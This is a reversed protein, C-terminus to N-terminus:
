AMRLISMKAKLFDGTAGDFAVLPHYGMTGYHANYDSSEQGGYTDSHTSDLDIFLAEPNRFAHVKDLLEQNAKNLHDISNEDFRAYFRSLSPQSAM